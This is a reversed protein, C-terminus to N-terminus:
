KKLPSPVVPPKPAPAKDAQIEAEEFIVSPVIVSIVATGRSTGGPLVPIGASVAVRSRSGIEREPSVPSVVRSEANPIPRDSDTVTEV